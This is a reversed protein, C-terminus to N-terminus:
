AKWDSFDALELMGDLVIWSDASANIIECERRIRERYQPSRTDPV